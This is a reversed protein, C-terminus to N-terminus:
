LVELFLAVIDSVQGHRTVLEDLLDDVVRLGLVVRSVEINRVAHRGGFVLLQTVVRLRELLVPALRGTLQVGIALVQQHIALLEAIHEDAHLRREAVLSVGHAQEEAARRRRVMAKGRVVGVQLLDELSVCHQVKARVARQLEHGALLDAHRTHAVGVRKDAGDGVHVVVCGVVRGLGRNSLAARVGVRDRIQCGRRLVRAEILAEFLELLKDGRVLAHALGATRLLDAGRNDLRRALAVQVAIHRQRCIILRELLQVHILAVRNDALDVLLKHLNLRAQQRAAEVNHPARRRRHLRDCREDVNALQVSRVVVRRDLAQWADQRTGNATVNLGDVLAVVTALQSLHVRQLTDSGHAPLQHALIDPVAGAEIAANAVADLRGDGLPDAQVLVRERARQAASLKSPAVAQLQSLRELVQVEAQRLNDIVVLKAGQDLAQVALVHQRAGTAVGDAVRQHQGRALVDMREVRLGDGRNSGDLRGGDDHLTEDVALPREVAALVWLRNRQDQPAGVVDLRVSLRQRLHHHHHADAWHRIRKAAHVLELDDRKLLKAAWTNVDDDVARTHEAVQEDVLHQKEVAGDLHSRLQVLRVFHVKHALM